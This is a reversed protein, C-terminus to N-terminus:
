IFRGIRFRGYKDAFCTHLSTAFFFLGRKNAPLKCLSFLVMQVCCCYCISVSSIDQGRLLINSHRQINKSFVTKKVCPSLTRLKLWESPSRCLSSLPYGPVSGTQLPPHVLVVPVFRLSLFCTPLHGNWLRCLLFTLSFMGKMALYQLYLLWHFLGKEAPDPLSLMYSCHCLETSWPCGIWVVERRCNCIGRLPPLTLSYVLTSM